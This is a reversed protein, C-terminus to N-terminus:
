YIESILMFNGDSKKKTPFSIEMHKVKLFALHLYTHMKELFKWSIEIKDSFFSGYLRVQLFVLDFHRCRQLFNRLNKKKKNPFFSEYPKRKSFGFRFYRKSLFKWINQKTKFLVKM